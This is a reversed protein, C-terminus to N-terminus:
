KIDLNKNVEAAIISDECINESTVLVNENDKTQDGSVSSPDSKAKPFIRNMKLVKCSKGEFHTWKEPANQVDLDFEDDKCKEPEFNTTNFFMNTTHSNQLKGSYVHPGIQLITSSENMGIAKFVPPPSSKLLEELNLGSFEVLVYTEEDGSSDMNSGDIEM